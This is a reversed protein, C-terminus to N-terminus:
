CRSGFSKKEYIFIARASAYFIYRNGIDSLTLGTITLRSGNVSYPLTKNSTSGAIGVATTRLSPFYAVIITAFLDKWEQDQSDYLNIHYCYNYQRTGRMFDGAIIFNITLMDDELKFSVELIDADISFPYEYNGRRGVIKSEEQCYVYSASLM